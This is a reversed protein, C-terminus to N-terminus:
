AVPELRLSLEHGVQHNHGGDAPAQAQSTTARELRLLAEVYAVLTEGRPRRLGREWRSVAADSVGLSTALEAQTLGAGERIRQGRPPLLLDRGHRVVTFTRHLRDADLM